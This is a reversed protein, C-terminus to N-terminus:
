GKPLQTLLFAICLLIAGVWLPCKGMASVVMCVFAAVGCLVVVTPM